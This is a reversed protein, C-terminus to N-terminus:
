KLNLMKLSGLNSRKKVFFVKGKKNKYIKKLHYMSILNHIINAKKKIQYYSISKIGWKFVTYNKNYKNLHRKWLIIVKKQIIHFSPHGNRTSNPADICIEIIIIM